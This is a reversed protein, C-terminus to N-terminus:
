RSRRGHIAYVSNINLYDAIKAHCGIGSVLVVDDLSKGENELDSLVDKLTHQIAFNGCGPCSTNQVPTILNRTM